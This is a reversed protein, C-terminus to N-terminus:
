SKIPNSSLVAEVEERSPMSAQAGLRAVSLTAACCAFRCASEASLGESLAVALAGNFCDGAATTDVVASAPPAAIMGDFEDTLLFAGKAGLTLVVNRVGSRRLSVAANRASHVDTVHVGTLIEAETENPTIWDLKSLLRKDVRQAPAPNLIVQLKKDSALNIASAVTDMPIEMQLLVIAPPSIDHLADSVHSSRLAGNAGPAVTISNEGGNNVVILAVGSPRSEDFSLKSLDMNENGFSAHAQKGFIDNGLRAVFSVNGGLRAAAVAQNAGKGGATMFLDGGLVTEGPKPLQSVKVVMDTNSSGIVIIPSPM